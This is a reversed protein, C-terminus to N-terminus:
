STSGPSVQDKFIQLYNIVADRVAPDTNGVERASLFLKLQTPSFIERLVPYIKLIFFIVSGTLFLISSLWRVLPTVSFLLNILILFALFLSLILIYILAAKIIRFLYYRRHARLVRRIVSLYQHDLNAKTM